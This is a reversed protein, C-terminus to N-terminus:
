RGASSSDELVEARLRAGLQEVVHETNNVIAANVLRGNRIEDITITEFVVQRGTPPIGMWEGRHTGTAKAHNAVYDGERGPDRERRCLRPVGPLDGRAGAETRGRFGAGGTCRDHRLRAAIAGAIRNSVAAKNDETSM